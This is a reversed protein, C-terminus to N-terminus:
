TRLLRGFGPVHDDLGALRMSHWAMAQDSSMVPKGLAAECEEIVPSVHLSSCSVFVADVEARGVELIANRISARSIRAVEADDPNNFTAMVPVHVGRAELFGRFMENIDSTYPTILALSKAGMAKCGAVGATMPSTCEIGPRVQRLKSFVKEEGIVITGSTCGYALVDLRRGPHILAAGDVLEDEMAALTEPTVENPFPIRNIYLAVGDLPLIARYEHEITSDPALVILGIAARHGLEPGLEYSLDQRYDVERREARSEIAAEAM